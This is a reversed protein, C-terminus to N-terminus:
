QNKESPPVLKWGQCALYKEFELQNLRAQINLLHQGGRNDHNHKNRAIEKWGKLRKTATGCPDTIGPVSRLAVLVVPTLIIWWEMKKVTHLIPKWRESQKM